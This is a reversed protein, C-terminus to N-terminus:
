DPRYDLRRLRLRLPLSRWAMIVTISRLQAVQKGYSTNARYNGLTRARLISGTTGLWYDPTSLLTRLRLSLM